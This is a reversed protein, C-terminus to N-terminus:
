RSMSSHRRRCHKKCSKPVIVYGKRMQDHCQLSGNQMEVCYQKKEIICTKAGTKRDTSCHLKKYGTPLKEHCKLKGNLLTWCYKTEKKNLWCTKYGDLVECAGTLYGKPPKKHCDKVNKNCYRLEKGTMVCSKIGDRRTCRVVHWKQPKEVQCIVKKTTKSRYCFRIFEIKCRYVGDRFSCQGAQKWNKPISSETVHKKASHSYYYYVTFTIMCRRIGHDVKCSKPTEKWDKPISPYCNMTDKATTRYCWEDKSGSM